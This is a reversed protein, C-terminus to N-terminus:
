RLGDVVARPVTVAQASPLILSIVRNWRVLPVPDVYVVDRDKLEFGEALALALPSSIDLHYIEPKELNTPRVVFVQRPDGSTPALGVAEGLAQHLTLRGKKLPRGGPSSVEGLVYVREDEFNAVRVTDGPQLLIRNPDVGRATLEDVNVRVTRLNRTILVASRDANPGFGGARSIAEPLTMPVHDITKQGPNRVEGDVYVNAARFAQINVTVQPDRLLRRLQTVLQDRLQNETLGAARVAGLYPFYILGDPSVTYSGAGPAVTAGAISGAAGSSTGGSSVGGPLAPGGGMAFEPHGWVVIGVVDAPGMRYPQPATFFPGLEATPDPRAAARQERVLQPTILTLAGPPPADAPQGSVFAGLTGPKTTFQQFNMGPALACGGLVAAGCLLLALRFPRSLPLNM